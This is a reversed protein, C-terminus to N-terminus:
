ATKIARSSGYDLGQSTETVLEVGRVQRWWEPLLKWMATVMQALTQARERATLGLVKNPKSSSEYVSVFPISLAIKREQAFQHTPEPSTVATPLIFHLINELQSSCTFHTALQTLTPHSSLYTQARLSTRSTLYAMKQYQM